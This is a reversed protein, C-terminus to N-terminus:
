TTEPLFNGLGILAGVCGGNLQLARTFADVAKMMKNMKYFCLGMGLRIDAPCAPNLRLCKKYHGLAGKFDRKNFAICAKGLLAPICNPDQNYSSFHNVPPAGLLFWFKKNPM